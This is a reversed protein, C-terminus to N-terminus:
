KTENVEIAIRLDATLMDRYLIFCSNFEKNLYLNTLGKYMANADDDDEPFIIIYLGQVKADDLGENFTRGFAESFTSEKEIETHVTVCQNMSLFDEIKFLEKYTM